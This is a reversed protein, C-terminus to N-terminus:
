RLTLALSGDRLRAMGRAFPPDHFGQDRVCDDASVMFTLAVTKAIADDVVDLPDRGGDRWVGASRGQQVVQELEAGGRAPLQAAVPDSTGFQVGQLKQRMSRALGVLGVYLPDRVRWSWRSPERPGHLEGVELVM